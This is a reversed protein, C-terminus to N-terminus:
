CRDRRPIFSDGDVRGVILTQPRDESLSSPRGTSARPVHEEDSSRGLPIPSVPALGLLLRDAVRRLDINM